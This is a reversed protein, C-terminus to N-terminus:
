QKVYIYTVIDNTKSGNNGIYYAKYKLENKDLWGTVKGHLSNTFTINNETHTWTSEKKDLTRPNFDLSTLDENLTLTLKDKIIGDSTNDYRVYRLEYTAVVQEITVKDGKEPETTPTVDDSDSCSLLMFFPILLLLSLKKM